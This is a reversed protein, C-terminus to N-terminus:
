IVHTSSSNFGAWLNDGVTIATEKVFRTTAFCVLPIGIDITIKSLAGQNSINLVKGNFQYHYCLDFPEKSLAIDEPPVAVKVKGQKGTNVFIDVDPALSVKDDNVQGEFINEIGVFSAVFDNQPKHFIEQPTGVQIIQGQHMVGIKDALYMAENFDHTVHLTTTKLTQHIKKLEEQFNEKSRPDLASLPEDLLLIEPSIILARALATRQQEGGSLTSPHRNLLHGIGLMTVLEDLKSKIIKKPLKRIQAGFIINEKVTLHPFLAYDQYVFGVKRQEPALTALNREKFRITGKDPRYMGAITELIVTKGTGTPGLIIFYEGEQVELNIDLLQFEGLKVTVHELRLM